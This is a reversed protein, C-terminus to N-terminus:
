KRAEKAISNAVLAVLFSVDEEFIKDIDDDSIKIKFEDEIATIFGLFTTNDMDLEGSFTDGLSIDGIDTMLEDAILNIVKSEIEEKNM